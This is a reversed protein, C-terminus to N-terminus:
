FYMKLFEVIAAVNTLLVLSASPHKIVVHTKLSGFSVQVLHPSNGEGLIKIIVHEFTKPHHSLKIKRTYFM